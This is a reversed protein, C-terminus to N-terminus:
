DDWEAKGDYEEIEGEPIDWLTTVTVTPSQLGFLKYRHGYGEPSQTVHRLEVILRIKPNSRHVVDQGIKFKFSEFVVDLVDNKIGKPENM